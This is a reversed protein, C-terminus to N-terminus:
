RNTSEGRSPSAVRSVCTRCSLRLASSRPRSSCPIVIRRSRTRQRCGQARLRHARFTLQKNKREAALERPRSFSRIAFHTLKRDKQTWNQRGNRESWRSLLPPKTPRSCGPSSRGRPAPTEGPPPAATGGHVRVAARAETRLSKRAYWSSKRPPHTVIESVLSQMGCDSGRPHAAHPFPIAKPDWCRCNFGDSIRVSGPAGCLRVCTRSCGGTTSARTGM